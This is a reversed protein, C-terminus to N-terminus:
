FVSSLAALAAKQHARVLVLPQLAHARAGAGSL